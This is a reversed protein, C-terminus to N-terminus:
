FEFGCKTCIRKKAYILKPIYSLLKSKDEVEKIAFGSANCNPCMRKIPGDSETSPYSSPAQQKPEPTPYSQQTAYAPPTPPAHLQQNQYAPPNIPINSQQSQYAPQYSSYKQNQIQAKLQNNETSLQKIYNEKQAILGQYYHITFFLEKIQDSLKNLTNEYDSPSEDSKNHTM